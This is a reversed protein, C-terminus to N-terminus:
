KQICISGSHLEDKMFLYLGLYLRDSQGQTSKLWSNASTIDANCEYEVNAERSAPRVQVLSKLVKLMIAANDKNIQVIM